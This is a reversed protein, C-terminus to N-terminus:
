RRRNGAFVHIEWNLKEKETQEHLMEVRSFYSKISKVPITNMVVMSPAGTNEAILETPDFLQYVVINQGACVMNSALKNWYKILYPDTLLQDALDDILHDQELTIEYKRYELIPVQGIEDQAEIKFLPMVRKPLILDFGYSFAPVYPKRLSPNLSQIISDPLGTMLAIDRISVYKYIKVQDTLQLDLNPLEPILGHKLYNEVLYQAAIYKPIYLQTEKPLFQMISKFSRDGGAMRIAKNIRGPGANYAAFALTWNNYIDHLSQLYNLAAETAKYPDKREDVYKNIELGLARATHPMIQWMGVAGVNSVALPKIASEIIPLIKLEAPLNKRDIEREIMPFYLYARELLAVTGDKYTLFDKIYQAVRVEDVQEVFSEFENLENLYNSLAIHESKAHLCISSLALSLWLIVKGPRENM